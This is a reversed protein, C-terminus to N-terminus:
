RARRRRPSRTATNEICRHVDAMFVNETKVVEAISSYTDPENKRHDLSGLVLDLKKKTSPNGLWWQYNIGIKGIFKKFGM